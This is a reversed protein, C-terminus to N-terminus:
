IVGERNKQGQMAMSEPRQPWVSTHSMLTQEAQSLGNLQLKDHSKPTSPLPCLSKNPFPIAELTRGGM